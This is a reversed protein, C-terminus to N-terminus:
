TSPSSEIASSSGGANAWFERRVRGLEKNLKQVHDVAVEMSADRRTDGGPTWAMTLIWSVATEGEGRAKGDIIRACISGARNSADVFALNRSHRESEPADMYELAAHLMTEITSQMADITERQDAARHEALLTAREAARAQADSGRRLLEVQANGFAAVAAGGLASGLPIFVLAWVPLTADSV